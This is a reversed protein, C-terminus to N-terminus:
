GKKENKGPPKDPPGINKFLNNFFRHVKEKQKPHAIQKLENIHDFLFMSTKSEHRGIESSWKELKKMDPKDSFVENVIKLNLQHVKEKEKSLKLLFLDRKEIFQRIQGEDLGVENKFQNEMEMEMRKYKSMDSRTTERYWLTGLTLLNIVGLFTIIWTSVRLRSFTDM